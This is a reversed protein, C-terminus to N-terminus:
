VGDIARVEAERAAPEVGALVVAAGRAQGRSFVVSARPRASSSPNAPAKADGPTVLGWERSERETRAKAARVAVAVRVSCCSM